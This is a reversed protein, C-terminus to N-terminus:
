KSRYQVKFVLQQQPSPQSWLSYFGSIWVKLCFFRIWDPSLYTIQQPVASHVCAATSSTAAIMTSQQLLSAQTVLQYSIHFMFGVPSKHHRHTIRKDPKPMIVGEWSLNFMLVYYNLVITWLGAGYILIGPRQGAHFPLPPSFIMEYQQMKLNSCFFYNHRIIQFPPPPPPCFVCWFFDNRTPTVGNFFDYHTPQMRLFYGHPTLNATM